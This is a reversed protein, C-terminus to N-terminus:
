MCQEHLQTGQELKMYLSLAQLRYEKLLKDDVPNEEVQSGGGGFFFIEWSRWHIDM